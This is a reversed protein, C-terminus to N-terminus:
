TSPLHILFCSRYTSATTCNSRAMASPASAFTSGCTSRASFSTLFFAAVASGAAAVDLSAADVVEDAAEEEGEEEMEEEEEEEGDREVAWGAKTDLTPKGLMRRCSVSCSRSACSLDSSSSSSCDWGVKGM